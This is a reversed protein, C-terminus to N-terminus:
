MTILLPKHYSTASEYTHARAQTINSFALDIQTARDTTFADPPLLSRLHHSAMLQMLQRSDAPDLLNVNFDGVLLLPTEPALGSIQRTLAQLLERRPATPSSYISIIASGGVTCQCMEIRWRHDEGEQQDERRDVLITGDLTVQNPLQERVAVLSGTGWRSTGPICCLERFGFRELDGQASQPSFTEAFLLIDATAFMPDNMTCQFNNPLHQVNHYVVKLAAQEQPWETPLIFDLLAQTKLRRMETEVMDTAPRPSPAKFKGDMIFLGAASTARSCAVYWESRTM